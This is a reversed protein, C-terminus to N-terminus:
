HCSRVWLAAARALALRAADATPFEGDPFLPAPVARDALVGAGPVEEGWWFRRRGREDTGGDYPTRDAVWLECLDPHHTCVAKAWATPAWTERGGKDDENPVITRTWCDAARAHVRKMGRHYAVEYLWPDPKTPHPEDRGDRRLLGGADGTGFCDPCAPWHMEGAFTQGIRTRGECRECKPGARWRDAHAALLASERDWLWACRTLQDGMLTLDRIPELECQVRILEARPADSEELVDALILRPTDEDPNDYIARCLALADPTHTV